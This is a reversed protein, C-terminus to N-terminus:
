GIRLIDRARRIDDASPEPTDALPYARGLTRWKHVGLRHYPLLEIKEVTALGDIFQRLRTLSAPDDTFGPVLVHRIWLTKGSESLFRAMDLTAANSKGTLRQHQEDDIHKIDLLFLDACRIFRTFTEFFAGSRTFPEGSTDIATHINAQKAAQFLDLMFDIQLLPEGGSVTLGGDAGWYSRYTEAERLLSLADRKVGGALAWTDPNHCYQCAMHCGQMFVVFRVGPGDVSGFSETSHIFGYKKESDKASAADHRM